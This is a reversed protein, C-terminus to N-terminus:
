YVAEKNHPLELWEMCVWKSLANKSLLSAASTRLNFMKPSHCRLNINYRVFIMPLEANNRNAM